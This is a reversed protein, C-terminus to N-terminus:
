KEVIISGNQVSIRKLKAIMAASEPNKMADEAFNKSRLEKM